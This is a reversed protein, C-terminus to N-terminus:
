TLSPEIDQWIRGKRIDCITQQSVGHERALRAGTGPSGQALESKIRAVLQATLKTSSLNRNQEQTTVWRCNGPEYGGSSRIRDITLTEHYGNAFAWERFREFSADWAECVRIGADRYIKALKPPVDGNQGCRMRM